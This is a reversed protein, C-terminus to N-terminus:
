LNILSNLTSSKSPSDPELSKVKLSDRSNSKKNFNSSDNTFWCFRLSNEGTSLASIKWLIIFSWCWIKTTSLWFFCILSELLSMLPVFLKDIREAVLLLKLLTWLPILALVLLVIVAALLVLLLLLLLLKLLLLLLLANLPICLKVLFVDFVDKFRWDNDYLDLEDDLNLILPNNVLDLGNEKVPFM